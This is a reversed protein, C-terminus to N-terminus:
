FVKTRLITALEKYSTGANVANQEFLCAQLIRKLVDPRPDLPGAFRIAAEDFVILTPFTEIDFDGLHEANDEVDIWAFEIKAPDFESCM